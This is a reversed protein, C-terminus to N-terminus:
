KAKPVQLAATTAPNILGAANSFKTSVKSLTAWAAETVEGFKLTSKEKAEVFTKPDIQIVKSSSGDGVPLLENVTGLPVAACPNKEFGPFVGNIPRVPKPEEEWTGEVSAPNWIAWATRDVDIAFVFCSDELKTEEATPTEAHLLRGLQYVFTPLAPNPPESKLYTLGTDVKQTDSPFDIPLLSSEFDVSCHYERDASYKGIRLPLPVGFGQTNSYLNLISSPDKFDTGKISASSEALTPPERFVEKELREGEADVLWMYFTDTDTKPPRDLELQIDEDTLTSIKGQIGRFKNEMEATINDPSAPQGM